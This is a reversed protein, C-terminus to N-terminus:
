IWIKFAKLLDERAVRGLFIVNKQLNLKKVLKECEGRYSGDGIVVLKVRQRNKLISVAKILYNLGKRKIIAGVYLIIRWGHLSHKNAFNEADINLDYDEPDIANPIVAIKEKKVGLKEIFMGDSKSLAIVKDAMRLSWKGLTMNYLSAVISEIFSEPYLLGHSHIILSSKYQKKSLAVINTTFAHEDHAHIIDFKKFDRVKKFLKFALPNRMLVIGPKIREVKYPTYVDYESPIATTLVEVEIGRDYLRNSLKYVFFEMGGIHPLFYPTVMLVRM